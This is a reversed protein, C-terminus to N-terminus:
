CGENSKTGMSVKAEKVERLALRCSERIISRFLKVVADDDLPGNNARSARSLVVRERAPASIPLGAERKVKGVAIALRARSSLLRLIEMDIKDIEARYEKIKM